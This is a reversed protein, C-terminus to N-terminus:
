PEGNSRCIAGARARFNVLGAGEMLRNAEVPMLKLQPERQRYVGCGPSQPPWVKLRM